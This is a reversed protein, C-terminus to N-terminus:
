GGLLLGGILTLPPGLAAALLARRTGPDGRSRALALSVPVALVLWALTSAGAGLGLALIGGGGLGWALSLAGLALGAHTVAGVWRVAPVPAGVVVPLLQLLAGSMVQGLYGLTILHVAALAAPMWRSALLAPGEWVLLLGALIAFLPATLFFRAPIPFPPAQDLALGRTNIM